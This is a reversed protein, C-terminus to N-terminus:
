GGHHKPPRVPIHMETKTVCSERIAKMQVQQGLTEGVNIGKPETMELAKSAIFCDAHEPSWTKVVSDKRRCQIPEMKFLQQKDRTSGKTMSPLFNFQKFYQHAGKLFAEQTSQNQKSIINRIAQMPLRIEGAILVPTGNVIALRQSLTILNVLLLENNRSNDVEFLTHPIAVLSFTKVVTQCPKPTSVTVEPWALQLQDLGMLDNFVNRNQEQKDMCIRNVDFLLLTNHEQTKHQGYKDEPLVNNGLEPNDGPLVGIDPQIGNLLQNLYGGRAHKPLSDMRASNMSVITVTDYGMDSVKDL